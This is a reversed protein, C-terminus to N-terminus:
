SIVTIRSKRSFMGALYGRPKRKNVKFRSCRENAVLVIPRSFSLIKKRKLFIRREQCSKNEYCFIPFLMRKDISLTKESINLLCTTEKLSALIYMLCGAFYSFKIFVYKSLADTISVSFISKTGEKWTTQM